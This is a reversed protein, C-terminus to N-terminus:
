RLRLLVKSEISVAAQFAMLSLDVYGDMILHVPVTREVISRCLPAAAQLNSLLPDQRNKLRSQLINFFVEQEAISIREIASTSVACACLATPSPIQHEQCIFDLTRWISAKRVTSQFTKWEEKSSKSGLLEFNSRCIEVEKPNELIPLYLSCLMQRHYRRTFLCDTTEHCVRYWLHKFSRDAMENIRLLRNGSRYASVAKRLTHLMMTEDGFSRAYSSGDSEPISPRISPVFEFHKPPTPSEFTIPDTAFGAGTGRDIVLPAAGKFRHQAEVDLILYELYQSRSPNLCGALLEALVRKRFGPMLTDAETQSLHTTGSVLLRIGLLVFLGCDSDNRQRPSKGSQFKWSSVEHGFHFIFGAM